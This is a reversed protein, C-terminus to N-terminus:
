CSPFSGLATKDRTLSRQSEISYTASLLYCLQKVWAVFLINMTDHQASSSRCILNAAVATNVLVTYLSVFRNPMQEGELLCCLLVFIGEEDTISFAVLMVAGTPARTRLFLCM